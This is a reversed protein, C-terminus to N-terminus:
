TTEKRKGTAPVKNTRRRQLLRWLGPDAYQIREDVTPLKDLQDMRDQRVKLRQDRRQKRRCNQCTQTKLVGLQTGPHDAPTTNSSRILVGCHQCIPHRCQQDAECPRTYTATTTM